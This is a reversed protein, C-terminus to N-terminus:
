QGVLAFFPQIQATSGFTTLGATTGTTLTINAPFAGTSFIGNVFPGANTGATYISGSAQYQFNGLFSSAANISTTGLAAVGVATVAAISSSGTIFSGASLGGSLMASVVTPAATGM